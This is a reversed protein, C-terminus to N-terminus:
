SYLSAFELPLGPQTDTPRHAKLPREQAPMEKPSPGVRHWGVGWGPRGEHTSAQGHAGWIYPAEAGMERDRLPSAQHPVPYSMPM